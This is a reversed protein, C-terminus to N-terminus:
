GRTMSRVSGFRSPSFAAINVSSAKGLVLLEAIAKGTAPSNLIGWCGHGAAVYANSSGPIAGILPINDPSVPLYCSQRASVPAVGLATSAERAFTELVSVDEPRPQIARPDAPLPEQAAGGCVYVEDQRPYAEPSRSGGTPDIYEVFLAQAPVTAKLVISTAKKCMMTPLAHFWQCADVTWPGMALVVKSCKVIGRSSTRVGTVRGDIKEVGDVESILVETGVKACASAIFTETLLKPHVQAAVSTSAIKSTDLVDVGHGDLWIHREASTPAAKTRNRRASAQRSKLSAEYAEVKRYGVDFTAGIEAHMAFSPEALEHLPSGSCWDRALFGGAKGSAACAVACKEIVTCRVGLNALQYAISAGIVGGGVVVIGSDSDQPAGLEHGVMTALAFRSYSSAFQSAVAISM